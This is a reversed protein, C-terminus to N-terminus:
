KDTTARHCNSPTQDHSGRVHIQYMECVNQPKRAHMAKTTKTGKTLKAAKTTKTTKTTATLRVFFHESVHNEMILMVSGSDRSPPMGPAFSQM